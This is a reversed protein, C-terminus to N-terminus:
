IDGSYIYTKIAIEDKLTNVNRAFLAIDANKM